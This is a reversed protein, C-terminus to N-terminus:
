LVGESELHQTLSDKGDSALLAGFYPLLIAHNYKALGSIKEQDDSGILGVEELVLSLEDYSKGAGTFSNLKALYSVNIGATVFGEVLARQISIQGRTGSVSVRGNAGIRARGQPQVAGQKLYHDIAPNVADKWSVYEKTRPNYAKGTWKSYVLGPKLAGEGTAKPSIDLGGLGKYLEVGTDSNGGLKALLSILSTKGKNKSLGRFLRPENKLPPNGFAKNKRIQWPQTIRKTSGAYGFANPAYGIQQIDRPLSALRTSLSTFFNNLFKVTATEIESRLFATEGETLGLVLAQFQEQFAQTVSM